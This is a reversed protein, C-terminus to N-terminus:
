SRRWPLVATVRWVDPDRRLGASFTGGLANVREEMGVLGHGGLSRGISGVPGRPAANSISLEVLRRRIAVAVDVPAGPAHRTANTISEQAIRYATQGILAPAGRPDGDVAFRVDVGSLRFAAALQPLDDLAPTPRRDAPGVDSRLVDILGRIEDVADRSLRGITAMSRDAADPDARIMHRAGEAQVTITSLSHGLIDHMERAIGTREEAAALRRETLRQTEQFTAREQLLEIRAQRRRRLAGGLVAVTLLAWGLALLQPRSAPDGPVAYSPLLLVAATGAYLLVLFVWRWPRILQTQTTYAATMCIAAVFVDIEAVVAAHLGLAGTLATMSALPTARRVVLAGCSVVVVVWYVAQVDPPATPGAAIGLAAALLALASDLVVPRRVVGTLFGDILHDLVHAGM